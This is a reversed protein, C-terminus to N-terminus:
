PQRSGSLARLVPDRYESDKEHFEVVRSSMEINLYHEAYYRDYADDNDEQPEFFLKIKTRGKELQTPIGELSIATFTVIPAMNTPRLTGGYLNALTAVFYDSAAGISEINITSQYTTIGTDGLTGQKWTPPLRFQFAVEKGDHTGRAVCVQTGDTLREHSALTFELDVFGEEM